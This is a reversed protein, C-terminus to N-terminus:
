KHYIFSTRSVKEDFDYRFFNGEIKSPAANTYFHSRKKPLTSSIFKGSAHSASIKESRNEDLELMSASTGSAGLGIANEVDRVEGLKTYPLQHSRPIDYNEDVYQEM